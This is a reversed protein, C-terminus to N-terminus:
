FLLGYIFKTFFDVEPGYVITGGLAGTVTVLIIGIFSLVVLVPPQLILNAIKTAFKWVSSVVKTGYLLNKIKTLRQDRNIKEIIYAFLIVGFVRVTSVAFGAHMEILDHQGRGFAGEALEGSSLAPLSMAVGLLLLGKKFVNYSHNNVLVKFRLLEMIAYITLFAIPFHVFIPHINM